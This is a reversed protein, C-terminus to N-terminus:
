LLALASGVCFYLSPFCLICLCQFDTPRQSFPVPSQIGSPFRLKLGTQWRSLARSLTVEAEKYLILASSHLGHQVVVDGWVGPETCLSCHPRPFQSLKLTTGSM